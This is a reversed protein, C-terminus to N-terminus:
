REKRAWIRRFKEICELLKRFHKEWRNDAGFNSLGTNRKAEDMLSEPALSIVSKIDMMQGIQNFKALWEPRPPPTWTKRRDLADDM